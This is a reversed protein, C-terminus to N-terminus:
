TMSFAISKFQIFVFVLKLQEISNDEFVNTISSQRIKYYQVDIVKQSSMNFM